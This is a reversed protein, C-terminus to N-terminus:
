RSQCALKVAEKPSIGHFRRFEKLLHSQDTYGYRYVADQIDFSPSLVMERWVMQYRVLNAVRKIPFGIEQLFLREMQRQSVCSYECIEKIPERGSSVVIRQVANFLNPNWRLSGLRRLLFSEVWAVQQTVDGLYFFPEFLAGWERGLAKLDVNQNRVEKFDLNIFLHAAWFHFRIAFSTVVEGCEKSVAFFPQDQLTSLYGTIKQTTHNIRIIIDMCTDPIILIEKRAGAAGGPAGATGGLGEASTWYCAIYPRLAECPVFEQYSQDSLFPRSTLPRYISSFNKM